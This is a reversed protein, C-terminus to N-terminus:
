NIKQYFPILVAAQEPLKATYGTFVIYCGGTGLTPPSASALTVCPGAGFSGMDSAPSWICFPDHPLRVKLPGGSSDNLVLSSDLFEQKGVQAHSSGVGPALHLPHALSVHHQPSAM